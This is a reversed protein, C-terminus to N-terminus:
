ASSRRGLKTPWRMVEGRQPTRLVTETFSNIAVYRAFFRDLVAGLLFASAGEFATEDCDLTIELGRAFSAAGPLPLRRVVSTSSVGRVGEIQRRAGTAGLEAYLELMERLPAAGLGDLENGLAVQNLSVHSVLRWSTNGWAPSPRPESPGSLCRVSEVPAGSELTFDTRGVGLSVFLPLDRNSCLTMVSLQDLDSRYPGEDGNVLSIFVEGGAYTSRPGIEQLRSSQLRPQRSLTYYANDERHHRESNAYFPLFERSTTTQSGFGTVETVSHVEFDLPRTRDAVVHYEHQRESLHIRDTRKPFLNM